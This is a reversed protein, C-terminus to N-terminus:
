ALLAVEDARAHHRPDVLARADDLERQPDRLEVHVLRAALARRAADARAPEDLQEARDLVSRRLLAIEVEREVDAVPDDALAEAHEAVRGRHRDRAAHRLEAVLEAGVELVAAAGEAGVRLEGPQESGDVLVRM